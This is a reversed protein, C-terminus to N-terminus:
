KGTEDCYVRFLYRLRTKLLKDNLKLLKLVREGVVSLIGNDELHYTVSSVPGLGPTDSLRLVSFVKGKEWLFLVLTWDPPGGQAAVMREDPSFAAAVYRESVMEACSLFGAAQPGGRGVREGGRTRGRAGGLYQRKPSIALATPTAEETLSVFHQQHSATDHLVLYSGAPYAVTDTDVHVVCETVGGRLGFVYEPEVLPVGMKTSSSPPLLPFTLHTPPFLPSLSSSPLLPFIFHTSLPFHPLLSPLFLFFSPPFPLHIPLFSLLLSFPPSIPPLSIPPLLSSLSSSIPLFPLLLFSPPLLSFLFSSIPPLSSLPFPPFLSFPPSIPPLSTIYSPLSPSLFFSPSPSLHFPQSPLSPFLLFSLSSSVHFPSLSSLFLLFSPSSSLHFQLFPLSPFLLFYSSVFPSIPLLPFPFSLSFLISFIPSLFHLFSFSLIFPPFFSLTFHSFSLLPFHSPFPPLLPPIFRSFHLLPLSSSSCLSSFLLFSLFSSILIFFLSFFIPHFFHHCFVSSFHLFSLFLIFYLFFLLLFLFILILSLLFFATFYGFELLSGAEFLPILFLFFLLFLATFYGNSPKLLRAAM